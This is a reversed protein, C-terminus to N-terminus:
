YFYNLLRILFCTKALREKELHSEIKEILAEFECYYSNNHYTKRRYYIWQKFVNYYFVMSNGILEDVDKVTIYKKRAFYAVSELFDILNLLYSFDRCSKNNKAIRIQDIKDAMRQFYIEKPVPNNHPNSERYLKQIIARAKIIETSGYRTDIRLLFDAKSTKNLRNLQIWGVCVLVITLIIISASNIRIINNPIDKTDNFYIDIGPVFYLLCLLGGVFLSVFIFGLLLLGILYITDKIFDQM